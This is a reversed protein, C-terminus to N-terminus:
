TIEINYSSGGLKQHSDLIVYYGIVGDGASAAPTLIGSFVQSQFLFELMIFFLTSLM